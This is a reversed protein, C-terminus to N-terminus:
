KLSAVKILVDADVPWSNRLCVDVKSLQVGTIQGAAYAANCKLMLDAPTFASADESKVLTQALDPKDLVSLMAKRGRGQNALVKMDAQLSKILNTQKGIVGVISGMAKALTDDTTELRDMLSKVLDTADVLDDGAANTGLSKGFPTGEGEGDDDEEGEEGEEAALKVVKDDPAALKDAKEDMDDLSKLLEAFATGPKNEINM